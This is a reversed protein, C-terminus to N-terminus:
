YIQGLDRLKQNREHELKDRLKRTAEEQFDYDEILEGDVLKYQLESECEWSTWYTNFHEYGIDLIDDEKKYKDIDFASDGESEYTNLMLDKIYKVADKKYKFYVGTDEDIWGQNMGENTISCQRAYRENDYVNHESIYIKENGESGDFYFEMYEDTYIEYAEARADKVLEQFKSVVEKWSTFVQHDNYDQLNHTTHLIYIRM